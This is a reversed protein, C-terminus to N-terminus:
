SAADPLNVRGILLALRGDLDGLLEIAFLAEFRDLDDLVVEVGLGILPLLDDDVIGGLGLGLPLRRWGFILRLRGAWILFASTSNLPVPRGFAAAM